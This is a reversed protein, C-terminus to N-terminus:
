QIKHKQFPESTAISNKLAEELLILLIDVGHVIENQNCIQAQWTPGDYVRKPGERSGSELEEVPLLELVRTVKKASM